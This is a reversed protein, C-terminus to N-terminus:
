RGHGSDPAEGALDQWQGPKLMGDKGDSRHVATVVLPGRATVLVTHEFHASPSGDRTAVTWGDALTRVEPGGLNVMPEIALAMGARLVPGVGPPGFNPIQPEQHMQRGIGHGVLDRVVSFGAEEVTRQIAHSIDGVRRGPWAQAVGSDLAARTVELLREIEPSVRGVVFTRAADGYYGDLMVGVDVSVIDGAELRRDGPIGHVVEDNVSTCIHKPFGHYGLFAPVGGERRLFAEAAADLAGTTVGPAVLQELYALCRAVLQGAAKLRRVAVREARSTV